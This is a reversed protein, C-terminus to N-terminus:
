RETSFLQVWYINGNREYYGIGMSVYQTNMINTKHAPSELWAKVVASASSYNVALNEGCGTASLGYEKLITYWESGDPRKHSIGGMQSQEVARVQAVECLKDSLTLTSLGEKRRALNIQSLVEKAVESSDVSPASESQLAGSDSFTYQQGDITVTGTVMSGDQSLYYRVDKVTIWGTVMRGDQDMYYWKGGSSVWGTKMAGGGNFFYWSGGNYLWGTKMAGGGNFFYWVGGIQRWGTQMAGSANMYYWVGGIKQWGTQMIGSSNFYYWVGDIKQWGTLNRSGSTYSWSGGNNVWAASVPASLPAACFTITSVAALCAVAKQFWLKM